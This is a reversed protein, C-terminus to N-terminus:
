NAPAYEYLTQRNGNGIKHNWEKNSISRIKWDVLQAPASRIIRVLSACLVKENMDIESADSLRFVIMNKTRFFGKASFM